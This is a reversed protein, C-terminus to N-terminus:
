VRLMRRAWRSPPSLRRHVRAQEGGQAVLDALAQAEGPGFPQLDEDFQGHEGDEDQQEAGEDALSLLDGAALDAPRDVAPRGRDHDDPEDGEGEEVHLDDLHEPPQGALYLGAGDLLDM